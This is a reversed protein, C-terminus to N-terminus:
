QDRYPRRPLTRIAERTRLGANAIQVGGDAIRVLPTWGCIPVKIQAHLDRRIQSGAHRFKVLGIETEVTLIEGCYQLPRMVVHSAPSPIQIGSVM